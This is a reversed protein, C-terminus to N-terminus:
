NDPPASNCELKPKSSSIVKAVKAGSSYGGPYEPVWVWMDKLIVTATGVLDCFEPLGVDPIKFMKTTKDGDGGVSLGVTILDVPVLIKESDDELSLHLVNAWEGGTLNEGYSYNVELPKDYSYIKSVGSGDEDIEVKTLRVMNKFDELYAFCNNMLLSILGGVLIKKM